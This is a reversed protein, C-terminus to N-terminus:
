NIKIPFDCLKYFSQHIVIKYSIVSFLCFVSSNVLFILSYLTSTAALLCVICCSCQLIFVISSSCEILIISYLKCFEERFPQHNLCKEITKKTKVVELKVLKNSTFM